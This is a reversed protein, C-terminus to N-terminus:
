KGAGGVALNGHQVQNPVLPGVSGLVCPRQDDWAMKVRTSFRPAPKLNGEIDVFRETWAVDKWAPDGLDGDVAPPTMARLCAYRSPAYEIRPTPFAGAARIAAVLFLSLVIAPTVKRRM